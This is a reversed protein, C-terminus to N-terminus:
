CVFVQSDAKIRCFHRSQSHKAKSKSLKEEVKNLEVQDTINLKNALVMIGRKRINKLELRLFSFLLIM